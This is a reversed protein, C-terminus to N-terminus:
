KYVDGRPMVRLVNIGNETTQYIARYGGRRLRYGDRGHLPSIDKGATKGEAIETLARHMKIGQPKSMRALGMQAQKTYQTTKM